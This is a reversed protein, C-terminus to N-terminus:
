FGELSSENQTSQLPTHVFANSSVTMLIKDQKRMKNHFLAFSARWKKACCWTPWICLINFNDLSFCGGAELWLHFLVASEGHKNFLLDDGATQTGNSTKYRKRQSLPGPLPM